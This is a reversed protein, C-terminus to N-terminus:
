LVKQSLVVIMQTIGLFSELLNFLRDTIRRCQDFEVHEFRLDELNSRQQNAKAQIAVNNESHLMCTVKLRRRGPHVFSLREICGISEDVAFTRLIKQSRILDICREFNGAFESAYTRSVRVGESGGHRRRDTGPSSKARRNGGHSAICTTRVPFPESEDGDSSTRRLM